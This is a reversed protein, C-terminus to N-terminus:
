KFYEEHAKMWKVFNLIGTEFDIKPSYGLYTYAKTIDSVTKDVDGPQMPFQNIIAKQGLAIEITKIMNLLSIPNGGGLNFIEYETKDYSMIAEIGDVIDSIYTYDRMSTGDGYMNIPKNELILRMFKNIALDPRQRPGYVTFFRMMYIKLNFLHHYTYCILEDALKTAAYPSIPKRINLDESFKETMCNGYVSSSSAMCMKSVKYKRMAELINITGIVNTQAYEKPHEISPRVGARAALHIVMDIKNDEFIKDIDEQSEINGEYIKYTSNKLAETINYHKFQPNYYDSFNDIGIVKYGKNLLSDTLNSGIFGACGTILVTNM